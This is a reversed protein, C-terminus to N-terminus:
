LFRVNEPLIKSVFRGRYQSGTNMMMVGIVLRCHGLLLKRTSLLTLRLAPPHLFHCPASVTILMVMTMVQVMTIVLFLCQYLRPCQVLSCSFIYFLVPSCSFLRKFLFHRCYLLFLESVFLIIQYHLPNYKYM